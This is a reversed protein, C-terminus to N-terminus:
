LYVVPMEKVPAIDVNHRDNFIFELYVLLYKVPFIKDAIYLHWLAKYHRHILHKCGCHYTIKYLISKYM